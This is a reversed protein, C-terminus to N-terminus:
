TGILKLVDAMPTKDQSIQAVAELRQRSQRSTALEAAALIAQGAFHSPKAADDLQSVDVAASQRRLRTAKRHLSKVGGGAIRAAAQAATEVLWGSGFVASTNRNHERLAIKRAATMRRKVVDQNNTGLAKAAEAKTIQEGPQKERILSVLLHVDPHPQGPIPAPM